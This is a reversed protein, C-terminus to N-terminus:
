LGREESGEPEAGVAPLLHARRDDLLENRKVDYGALQTRM